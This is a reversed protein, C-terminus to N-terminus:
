QSVPVGSAPVSSASAPVRKLLEVEFILTSNAPIPGVANAGYGMSPPIALLRKGGERMGLLGREWGQIVQDQGITFTFPAGHSGSSDFVTGDTLLGTYNVTLTDGAVVPGGAGVIVDQVELQTIAGGSQQLTALLAQTPTSAQQQPAGFFNFRGIGFFGMLVVVAIVIVVLIVVINTNKSNM